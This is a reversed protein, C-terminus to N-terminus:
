ATRKRRRWGYGLLGIAGVGLLALTSPEPVVSVVGTTYLNSTDWSLGNGLAPMNVQTFSGATNGSFIDFSQDASPTFGNLLNVDLTGNLTALGSVDLQDYGSGPTDGAFELILTSTPDLLVNQVSVANPSNGVHYSAEYEVNGTTSGAGTVFQTFTLEQGSGTPGNVIGNNVFSSNIEANGTATLVKTTDLSSANGLQAGNLTTLSGGASLNTQSGLIATDAALIVVANSGVNLTGGSGPPGSQNFQGTQTANGIILEATATVAGIGSVARNVQGGAALTAGSALSIGAGGQSIGFPTILTGQNIAIGGSSGFNNAEPLTLQAAGTKTLSGSGTASGAYTGNATQNFVVAANNTVNGQLSITNGQLTGASVTTGGTYTNSGTMTLTGPGNAVLSGSGSVNGAFSPSGALNFALTGNDTVNGALSGGSGGNGLALTGAYITTGGGYTNSGTLILTGPGFKNLAGAAGSISGSLTLTNASNSVTVDTNGAFILPASILHSGNALNIAADGSNALLTVAQSGSITYATTSNFTLSGVTVPIDVTVTRPATIASGFIAQSGVANPLTGNWNASLSWNGSADNLWNASPNSLVLVNSVSPGARLEDFIVTRTASTGGNYWYNSFQLFDSADLWEPYTGTITATSVNNANLSAATPGGNSFNLADLDSTNLVWMQGTGSYTALGQYEAVVLYTTGASVANNAINTPPDSPNAFGAIGPNLTGHAKSEVRFLASNWWGAASSNVRAEFFGGGNDVTPMYVLYSIWLNGSTIASAPAIQRGIIDDYPYGGNDTLEVANGQTALTNNTGSFTLGPVIVAGNANGGLQWSSGALWGAGGTGGSVNSNLPYNFPEYIGQGRATGELLLLALAMVVVLRVCHLSSKM